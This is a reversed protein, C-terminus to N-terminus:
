AAPLTGKQQIYNSLKIDYKEQIIYTDQGKTFIEAAYIIHEKEKLNELVEENYEVHEQMDLNTIPAHHLVRAHWFEGTKTNCADYLAYINTSEVPDKVLSYPSSLKSQKM